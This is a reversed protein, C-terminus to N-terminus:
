GRTRFRFTPRLPVGDLPIIQPCIVRRPRPVLFPLFHVVFRVLSVFFLSAPSPFLVPSGRIVRIVCILFRGRYLNDPM